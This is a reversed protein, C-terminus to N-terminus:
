ITSLPPTTIVFSLYLSTLHSLALVQIWTQVKGQLLVLMQRMGLAAVPCFQSMSYEASPLVVAAM